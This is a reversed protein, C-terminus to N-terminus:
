DELRRAFLEALEERLEPTVRQDADLGLIWPQSLPLHELTWAWQESHNQFEHQVVVAGHRQAIQCTNDTSGSDVVFQEATWSELSALCAGLNDEENYTLVVASIPLGQEAM